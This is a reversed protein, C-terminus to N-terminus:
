NPKKIVTVLFKDSDRGLFAPRSMTITRDGPGVTPSVQVRLRVYPGNVIPAHSIGKDIISVVAGSGSASVRDTIDLWDGQCSCTAVAGRELTTLGPGTGSGACNVDRLASQAGSSVVLSSMLVFFTLKM